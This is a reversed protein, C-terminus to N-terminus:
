QLQGPYHSQVWRFTPTTALTTLIAMLVLISFLESGIIDKEKGIVLLILGMMGRANMLCGVALATGHNEGAWRAAIWCAVGKGISAAIFVVIAVWALWFTSVLDLRTKLGTYAFFLPVLLCLTLPEIQKKLSESVIGRPIACGILFAGFV